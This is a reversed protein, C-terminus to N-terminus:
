LFKETFACNEEVWLRIKGGGSSQISERIGDNWINVLRGRRRKEQPNWEAVQRAIGCDQVRMVHGGRRLRPEETEQSIDRKMGMKTRTTENRIKDTRLIRSLRRAYDMEDSM